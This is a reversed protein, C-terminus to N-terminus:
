ICSKDQILSRAVCLPYKFEFLVLAIVIVDFHMKPMLKPGLHLSEVLLFKAWKLVVLLERNILISM